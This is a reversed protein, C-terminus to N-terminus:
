ATWTSHLGFVTVYLRGDDTKEIMYTIPMDQSIGNPANPGVATLTLKAKCRTQATQKDSTIIDNVSLKIPSENGGL